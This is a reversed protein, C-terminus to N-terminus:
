QYQSKVLETYKRFSIKQWEILEKTQKLREESKKDEKYQQIILIVVYFLAIFIIGMITFFIYKQTTIDM